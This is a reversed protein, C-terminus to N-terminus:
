DLGMARLRLEVQALSRVRVLAEPRTWPVEGFLRWCLLCGLSFRDAAPGGGGALVEPALFGPTGSGCRGLQGLDVLTRQGEADRVVHAPSVDGHHPGARHLAALAHAVALGDRVAEAVSVPGRELAEGEVFGTVLWTPSSGEGAVLARPAPLAPSGSRRLVAFAHEAGRRAEAPVAKLVVRAGSSAEVAEWAGGEAGEGLPRVLRYGRPAGVENAPGSPESR